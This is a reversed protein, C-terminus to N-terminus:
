CQISTLRISSSTAFDINSSDNVRTIAIIGEYIPCIFPILQNGICYFFINLRSSNRRVMKYSNIICLIFIPRITIGGFWMVKLLTFGVISEM